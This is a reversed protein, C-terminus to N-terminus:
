RDTRIVGVQVDPELRSYTKGCPTLSLVQSALAKEITLCEIETSGSLYRGLTM